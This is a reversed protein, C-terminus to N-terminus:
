IILNPGTKSSNQAYRWTKEVTEERRRGYNTTVKKTVIVQAPPRYPASAIGVSSLTGNSDKSASAAQNRGPVNEQQQPGQQTTGGASNVRGRLSKPSLVKPLPLNSANGNGISTSPSAVPAQRGALGMRSQSATGEKSKSRNRVNNWQYLPPAKAAQKAKASPPQSPMAPQPFRNNNPSAAPIQNQQQQLPVIPVPPAGM